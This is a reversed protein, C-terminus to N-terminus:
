IASALTRFIYMNIPDCLLRGKKNNSRARWCSLSGCIYEYNNDDVQEAEEVHECVFSPLLSSADASVRMLLLGFTKVWLVSVLM